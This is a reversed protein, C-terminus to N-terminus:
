YGIMLLRFPMRVRDHSYLTNAVACTNEYDRSTVRRGLSNRRYGLPVALALWDLDVMVPAHDSPQANGRVQKHIM